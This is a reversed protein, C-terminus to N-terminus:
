TPNPRYPPATPTTPTYSLTQAITRIPCIQTYTHRHTHLQTTQPCASAHIHRNTCLLDIMQEGNVGPGLM